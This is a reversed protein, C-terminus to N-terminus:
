NRKRRRRRSISELGLDDEESENEEEDEEPEEEPEDEVVPEEEEPEPPASFDGGVYGEVAKRLISGIAEGSDDAMEKLRKLMGSSVRFDVVASDELIKNLSKMAHALHEVDFDDSSIKTKIAYKLEEESLWEGEVFIRGEDLDIKLDDM